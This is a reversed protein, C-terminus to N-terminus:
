MRAAVLKAATELATRNQAPDNLRAVGVEAWQSGKQIFITDDEEYAKDGIGPVLRFPHKLIDRDIELSKEAGAGVIIQVQALPGTSPGVYQCLTQDGAAGAAIGADLKTGALAEAETHTLLACPDLNAAVATSAAVSPTIAAASSRPAPNTATPGGHGTGTVTTSCSTLMLSATAFAVAIALHNHM